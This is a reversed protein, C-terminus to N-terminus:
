AVVSYSVRIMGKELKIKRITIPGIDILNVVHTGGCPIGFDGYFVVRAPKNEPLNEPVFHCAKCMEERSMFALRTACSATTYRNCAEEIAARLADRETDNLTGAYEVYAGEPFHYAKGPMWPLQLAVVAMDIVHGASHLRSNLTRRSLDVECSVTDGINITGSTIQGIHRVIDDVFRVEEVAFTGTPGTITGKDYPQGGGQPYFVTQNLIVVTRGKEDQELAQVTATCPAYKLSELYLLKTTMLSRSNRPIQQVGYCHVM